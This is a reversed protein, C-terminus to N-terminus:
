TFRLCAAYSASGGDGRAALVVLGDRAARWAPARSADLKVGLISVESPEFGLHFRVMEGKEVRVVPPEPKMTCSHIYDACVTSWCYSSYALWMSGNATEVWAPPPGPRDLTPPDPPAKLDTAGGCGTLAIAALLFSISRVRKM